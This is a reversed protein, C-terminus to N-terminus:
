ADKLRNGVETKKIQKLIQNADLTVTAEKRGKFVEKALLHAPSTKGICAFALPIEPHIGKLMQGLINKIVASKGYYEEDITVKSKPHSNRLLIALGACFTFLIFNRIQGNRRFIEQLQRKARKPILVAYWKKNSLCLITNKSTQEIKGSQDIEIKM